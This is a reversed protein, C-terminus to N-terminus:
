REREREGNKKEDQRDALRKRLGGKVRKLAVNRRKMSMMSMMSMAAEDRKDVEAVARGEKEWRQDGLYAREQQLERRGEKDM